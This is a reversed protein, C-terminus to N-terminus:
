RMGTGSPMATATVEAHAADREAQAKADDPRCASVATANELWASAIAFRRARAASLAHLAPAEDPGNGAAAHRRELAAVAQDAEALASRASNAQSEALACDLPLRVRTLATDGQLDAVELGALRSFSAPTTPSTARVPLEPANLYVSHGALPALESTPLKGLAALFAAAKAPDIIDPNLADPLDAVRLTANSREIAESVAAGSELPLTVRGVRVRLGGAGPDSPAAEAM